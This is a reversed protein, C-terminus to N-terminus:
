RSKPPSERQRFALAGWTAPSAPSEASERSRRWSAVSTTSPSQTAPTTKKRRFGPSEANAAAAKSMKARQPSSSAAIRPTGHATKSMTEPTLKSTPTSSFVPPMSRIVPSSARMAVGPVALPAMANTVPRIEVYLEVEPTTYGAKKGVTGPNTSLSPPPSANCTASLMLTPAAMTSTEGSEVM